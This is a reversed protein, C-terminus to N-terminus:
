QTQLLLLRGCPMCSLCVRGLVNPQEGKRIKSGDDRRRVSWKCVKEASLPESPAADSPTIEDGWLRKAFVETKTSEDELSGQISVGQM